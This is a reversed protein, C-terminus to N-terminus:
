KCACLEVDLLIRDALSRMSTEFSSLRRLHFANHFEVPIRPNSLDHAIEQPM